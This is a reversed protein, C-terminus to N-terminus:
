NRRNSNCDDALDSGLSCVSQKRAATPVTPWSVSMARNTPSIDTPFGRQFLGNPGIDLLKM